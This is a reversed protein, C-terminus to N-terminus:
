YNIKELRIETTKEKTNTEKLLIFGKKAAETAITVDKSNLSLKQTSFIGDAFTIIGLMWNPKQNVYISKIKENDTYVFAYTDNDIKETYSFDFYGNNKLYSGYAKLKNWKNMSKEVKSLALIKFDNDFEVAYLDLIQTNAAPKFGEFIMLKNGNTITQIAMPQIYFEKDIKGSTDISLYDKFVDWKFTKQAVKGDILNFERESYGTIQEYKREDKENIAYTFDYSIFRDDVLRTRDNSYFYNEDAWIDVTRVLKGTEIHYIEYLNKTEKKDVKTSKYFVLYKDNSTIFYYNVPFKKDKKYTISWKKKFDLDMVVIESSEKYLDGERVTADRFNFILYGANSYPVTVQAIAKKSIAKLDTFPQLEANFFIKSESVSYDSLDLKRYFYYATDDIGQLGLALNLNNGNLRIYKIEPYLDILWTNFYFQQFSSSGVKNLNKDLIIIELELTEKAVKDIQYLAAYGWVDERSENLIVTMGLYKNKSLENLKQVQANMSQFVILLLLLIYNQKINM